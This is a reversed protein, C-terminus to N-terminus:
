AVAGRQSVGSDHSSSDHSSSDDTGSERVSPVQRRERRKAERREAERRHAEELDRLMSDVEAQAQAQVEESPWGHEDYYEEIAAIGDLRTREWDLYDALAAEVVSSITEGNHAAINRVLEAVPEDVTVNLVAKKTGAKKGSM